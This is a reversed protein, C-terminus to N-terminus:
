QLGSSTKKSQKDAIILEHKIRRLLMLLVIGVLTGVPFAILMSYCSLRAISYYIPNRQRLPFFALYILVASPLLLVGRSFIAIITEGIVATLDSPAIDPMTMLRSAAMFGMSLTRIVAFFGTLALGSGLLACVAAFNAKM